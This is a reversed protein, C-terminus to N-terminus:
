HRNSSLTYHSAQHPGKAAARAPQVQIAKYSIHLLILQLELGRLWFPNSAGEHPFLLKVSSKPVAFHWTVELDLHFDNCFQVVWMLVQPSTNPWAKSRNQMHWPWWLWSCCCPKVFKLVRHKCLHDQLLTSMDTGHHRTLDANLTSPFSVITYLIIMTCCDVPEFWCLAPYLNFTSSYTRM